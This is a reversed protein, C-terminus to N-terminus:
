IKILVAAVIVLIASIFKRFLHNKEKLLFYSLLVTPIIQAPLIIAVKAPEPASRYAWYTFVFYSVSPIASIFLIHLTNILKEKHESIDAVIARWKVAFVVSTSSVYAIVLYSAASVQQSLESSALLFASFSLGSLIMLTVGRKHFEVKGNVVNLIALALIIIGVFNIPSLKLDLFVLSMLTTFVLTSSFAIQATGNTLNKIAAFYLINGVGQGIAVLAVATLSVKALDIDIGGLFPSVLVSVILGAILFLVTQTESSVKIKNSVVKTSIGMFARFIVAFLTLVLWNM